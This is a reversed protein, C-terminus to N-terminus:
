ATPKKILKTSFMNYFYKNVFKEDEERSRLADDSTGISGVSWAGLVGLGLIGFIQYKYGMIGKSGGRGRRRAM